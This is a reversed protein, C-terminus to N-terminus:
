RLWAELEAESKLKKFRAGAVGKVRAECEAWTQHRKLEGKVISVYFAKGSSGSSSRKSISSSSTSSRLIPFAEFISKESFKKIEWDQRQSSKDVYSLVAAQDVYENGAVGSHGAVLQWKLKKKLEANGNFSQDLEQWLDINGVAQGDAKVWNRKKWGHVWETIGKSVYSSDTFLHIESLKKLDFEKAMLLLAELAARMEMRNNTTPEDYGRALIVRGAGGLLCAWGGPGPNGSCAGDTYIWVIDQSNLPSVPALSV